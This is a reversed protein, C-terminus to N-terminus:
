PLATRMRGGAAIEVAEFESSDDRGVVPMVIDITNYIFLILIYIYIPM